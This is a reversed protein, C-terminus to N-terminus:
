MGVSSGYLRRRRDPNSTFFASGVICPAFRCGVQSCDRACCGCARGWGAGHRRLLLRRRWRGPLTHSVGLPWWACCPGGPVGLAAPVALAAPVDSVPFSELCHVAWPPQSGFQRHGLLMGLRHVLAAVAMYPKDPWRRLCAEACQLSHDLLSLGLESSSRASGGGGAGAPARPSEAAAEHEPHAAAAAAAAAAALEAAALPGVADLPASAAAALPDAALAAARGRGAVPSGPATCAGGGADSSLRRDLSSARPPAPLPATAAAASSSPAHGGGLHERPPSPDTLLPALLECEDARWM